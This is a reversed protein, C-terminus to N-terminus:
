QRALALGCVSRAGAANLASACASMTSGTMVVDDLLLIKLGEVDGVCQFSGEVNRAREVRSSLSVQPPTDRTRVLVQETLPLGTRKSLERALLSSQNYGRNRLRRKHLPVPVVLDARMQNKEWWSALLKGLVPAASRVGGYKLAHVAERVAGKMIYPARIRGIALPSNLCDGCPGSSSLQQACIKCFPPKLLAM